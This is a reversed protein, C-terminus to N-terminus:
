EFRLIPIFLLIAVGAFDSAPGSLRLYFFIDVGAFDSAPGSLRLYFFDYGLQASGGRLNLPVSLYRRAV